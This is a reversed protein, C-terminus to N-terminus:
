FPCDDPLTAASSSTPPTVGEAESLGAREFAEQLTEFRGKAQQLFAQCAVAHGLGAEFLSLSEELPLVEQRLREVVGSLAESRATFSDDTTMMMM